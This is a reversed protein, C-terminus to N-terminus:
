GKFKYYCFYKASEVKTEIIKYNIEIARVYQWNRYCLLLQNFEKYYWYKSLSVILHGGAKIIREIEFLSQHYIGYGMKNGITFIMDFKKEKIPINNPDCVLDVQVNQNNRTYSAQESSGIYKFDEPVNDHLYSDEAFMDLVEFQYDENAKFNENVDEVMKEYIKTNLDKEKVDGITYSVLNITKNFEKM